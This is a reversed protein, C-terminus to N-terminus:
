ARATRSPGDTVSVNSTSEQRPEALTTSSEDTTAEASEGNEGDGNDTNSQAIYSRLDVAPPKQRKLGLMAPRSAMGHALGNRDRVLAKVTEHNRESLLSDEKALHRDISSLLLSDTLVTEVLLRQAGSVAEVGGLDGILEDRLM